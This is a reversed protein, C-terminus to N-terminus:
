RFRRREFLNKHGIEVHTAKHCELFRSDIVVGERSTTSFLTPIACASEDFQRSARGSDTFPMDNEGM